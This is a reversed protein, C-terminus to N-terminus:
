NLLDDFREKVAKKTAKSKKKPTKAVEDMDDLSKNVDLTKGTGTKIKRRTSEREAYSSAYRYQGKAKERLKEVKDKMVKSIPKTEALASLLHGLEIDEKNDYFAAAIADKIAKEQAEYELYNCHLLLLKM